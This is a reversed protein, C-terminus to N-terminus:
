YFRQIADYIAPGFAYLLPATFVTTLILTTRQSPKQPEILITKKNPPCFTAPRTQKPEDAELSSAKRKVGIIQPPSRMAPKFSKKPMSPKQRNAPANSNEGLKKFNNEIDVRKQSEFAQSVSLLDKELKDFLLLSKYYEKRAVEIRNRAQISSAELSTYRKKFSQCNLRAKEIQEALTTKNVGSRLLKEVSRSYSDSNPLGPKKITQVEDGSNEDSSLSDIDILEQTRDVPKASFLQNSSVDASNSLLNEMSTEAADFRSDFLRQYDQVAKEFLTTTECFLKTKKTLEESLLKHYAEYEVRKDDRMKALKAMIEESLSM